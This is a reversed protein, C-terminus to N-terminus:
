VWGDIIDGLYERTRLIDGIRDEGAEREIILPGRYGIEILERVCRKIDAKGEGVPVEKGLRNKEEPWLGDKVHVSIIHDKLVRIGPLPYGKGYLILNATDFNVRANDMDLAEIFTLIGEPTEQGTEFAFYIGLGRCYDVVEGVAALMKEYIPSNEDEPIFGVHAAIAPANIDVAFEAVKKAFEVRETIREECGFGATKMIAVIDGWDEGSFGAFVTAVRLDLKKLSEKLLRKHEKGQAPGCLLQVTEFGVESAKKLAGTPEAIGFSPLFVGIELKKGNGM